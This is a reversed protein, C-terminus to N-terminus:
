EPLVKHIYPSCMIYPDCGQPECSQPCILPDCPCSLDPNCTQPCEPCSATVTKRRWVTDHIERRVQALRDGRLLEALTENLVDGVVCDRAMVCPFVQGDPAVALKGNWCHGCLGSLSAEEGLLQQGRGFQRVESTRIPGAVGLDALFQRTREAAEADENIALVGARTQVGNDILRKLNAITRRHSGRVTTVADHTAPDASYVSTAFHVGNRASFEITEEDLRSLNTFVEVFEFGLEVARRLITKFEPNLQPEGGILQVQRCGLSYAESMVAEYDAATLVDRDGTRPSSETYCHVCQLNCRNTLELWLFSLVGDVDEFRQPAPSQTQFSHV